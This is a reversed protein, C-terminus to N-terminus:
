MQFKTNVRFLQYKSYTSTNRFTQGNVESTVVVRRPLWLVDPLEKFHVQGYDIETTQKEMDLLPPPALLDTRLRVIQHTTNDIWAVGQVLIVASQSGIKAIEVVPRAKPNQAFAVVDTKRRGVMEQGLYRFRCNAQFPRDFFISDAAFGETLLFGGAPGQAALRRGKADTRYEELDPEGNKHVALILYHFKRTQEREVMRTPGLIEQDVQEVSTTNPFDRFFLAVNNGVQELIAPLQNQNPAPALKKLVPILRILEQPPRDTVPRAKSYYQVDYSDLPMRMVQQVQRRAAAPPLRAAAFFFVVCCTLFCCRSGNTWM